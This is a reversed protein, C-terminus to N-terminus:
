LQGVLERVLRDSAAALRDSRSELLEGYLGHLRSKLLLPDDFEGANLDMSASESDDAIRVRVAQGRQGGAALAWEVHFLDASRHLVAALIENARNVKAALREDSVIAPDIKVSKM